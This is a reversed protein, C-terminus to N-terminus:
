PAGLLALASEVAAHGTAIAIGAGSKERVWDHDALLGGAVFLNACLPRGGPGVPRLSRDVKVGVRNIPHGPAGFFTSMHWDDRSYPIDVGLGLVTERVGHQSAELGGGFFRGTALVFARARYRQSRSKGERVALSLRSGEGDIRSVPAGQIIPVGSERLDRKLMESLRMGPLSPTLLPIEFVRVGLRQELEQGIAAARDFGLVAPLGLFRAGGLHPGAAECFADLFAPKEFQAAIHPVSLRLKPDLLGERPLRVARLGPWRVRLNGVVQEPSFDPLREFGLMVTPRRQEWAEANATMTAGVAYTPKITGAGTVIAQNNEGSRRYGLPSGELYTIFSDIANRVGLLGVRGYPHGPEREILESIAAWPHPRYRKTETPYMALLDLAGSSYPLSGSGRAVVMTRWGAQQARRAAVLGSLGGGIVLLDVDITM